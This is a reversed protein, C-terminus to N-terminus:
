STDVSRAATAIADAQLFTQQTNSIWIYALEVDGGGGGGGGKGGGPGECTSPALDPLGGLDFNVPGDDNFDDNVDDEGSDASASATGTPGGTSSGDANSTSGDDDASASTEDDEGTGTSSNDGGCALVLAYASMGLRFRM